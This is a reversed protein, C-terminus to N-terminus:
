KKKGTGQPILEKSCPNSGGDWRGQGLAQCLLKWCHCSDDPDADRGWRAQGPGLSKTILVRPHTQLRESVLPIPQPMFLWCLVSRPRPLPTAPAPPAPAWPPRPATLPPRGLPHCMPRLPLAPCLWDRPPTLPAPLLPLSLVRTMTLCTQLVSPWSPLHPPHLAASPDAQVQACHSARCDPGRPSKRPSLASQDKITGKWWFFYM